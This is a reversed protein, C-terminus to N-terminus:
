ATFMMIVAVITVVQALSIAWPIGVINMGLMGGVVTPIITLATLVAIVKMVKNMQFSTTNLYFAIDDSLGEALDETAELLFDCRELLAKVSISDQDDWGSMSPAKGQLGKLMERTHVLWRLTHDVEKKVGYVVPLFAKPQRSMPVAESRSLEVEAERILDEIMGLSRDMVIFFASPTDLELGGERALRPVEDLLPINSRSITVLGDDQDIFLLSIWRLLNSRPYRTSPELVPVQLFITVRGGTEETRPYAWEWIRGGLVLGSIGFRRGLSPLHESSVDTFRRWQKRGGDEAELRALREWGRGPDALDLRREVFPAAALQEAEERRILGGRSLSRGGLVLAVPLRLLRLLIVLGGAEPIIAVTTAALSAVIVFLDFLHTPARVFGLRDRSYYLKLGYELVFFFLVVYYLFEMSAAVSSPLDVFFPLVLVPILLVSLAIMFGESLIRDVARRHEARRLEEDYAKLNALRALAEGQVYRAETLGADESEEMREAKGATPWAFITSLGGYLCSDGCAPQLRPRYPSTWACLTRRCGSTM